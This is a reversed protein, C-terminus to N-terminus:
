PQSGRATLKGYGERMTMSLLAYDKRRQKFTSRQLSQQQQQKVGGLRRSGM